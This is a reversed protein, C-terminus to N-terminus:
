IEVYPDTDEYEFVSLNVKEFSVDVCIRRPCNLIVRIPRALGHAPKPALIRIVGGTKVSM